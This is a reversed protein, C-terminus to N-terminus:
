AELYLSFDDGSKAAAVHFVNAGTGPAIAFDYKCIRNWRLSGAQRRKEAAFRLNIRSPRVIM